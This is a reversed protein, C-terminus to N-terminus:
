LDFTGRIGFQLWEHMAQDFGDTADNVKSYQALSVQVFPGVALKENVKYDGGLQLNLLEFGSSTRSEEGDDFWGVEYGAGVGAWPVLQGIAKFDYIGQVGVRLVSASADPLSDKVDSALQGFGYSAYAGLKLHPIVQYLADVQVPVQSKVGDSMKGGDFADGLAPAFGVRLGLQVQAHSLSPVAFAIAAAAALMLKRVHM